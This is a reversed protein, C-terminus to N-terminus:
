ASGRMAGIRERAVIRDRLVDNLGELTDDEFAAELWPLSTRELSDIQVPSLMRKLSGTFLTRACEGVLGVPLEIEKNRHTLRAVLWCQFLHAPSVVDLEYGSLTETREYFQGAIDEFEAAELLEATPFVTFEGYPGVVGTMARVTETSVLSLQGVSVVADSTFWTVDVASPGLSARRPGQDVNRAWM